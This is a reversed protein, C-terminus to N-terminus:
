CFFAELLVQLTKLTIGKCNSNLWFSLHVGVGLVEWCSIVDCWVFFWLQQIFVHLIDSFFSYLKGSSMDYFVTYARVLSLVFLVFDAPMWYCRNGSFWGRRLGVFWLVGVM